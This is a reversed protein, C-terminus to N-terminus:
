RERCFMSEPKHFQPVQEPNSSSKELNRGFSQERKKDHDDNDDYETKSDDGVNCAETVATSVQEKQKEYSM